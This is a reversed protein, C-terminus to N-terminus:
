IVRVEVSKKAYNLIHSFDRYHHNVVVQVSYTGAATQSSSCLSFSITKDKQPALEGSLRVEKIKTLGMGDFGLAKPLETSVSVMIPGESVNKVTVLLELCSDKRAVLRVPRLATTINFPLGAKAPAEKSGLIDDFFGM